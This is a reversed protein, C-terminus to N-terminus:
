IMILLRTYGYSGGNRFWSVQEIKFKGDEIYWYCKYIDRLMTM